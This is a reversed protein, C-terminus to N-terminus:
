KKTNSQHTWEFSLTKKLFLIFTNMNKMQLFLKSISNLVIEM